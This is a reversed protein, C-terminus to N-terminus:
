LNTRTYRTPPATSVVRTAREASKAYRKKTAEHVGTALADPYDDHGAGDRTWRLLQEEAVSNKLGRYHWIKQETYLPQLQAIRDDKKGTGYNSQSIEEIPLFIGEEKSRRLVPEMFYQRGVNIEPFIKRFRYERALNFLTNRTRDPKWRGGFWEAVYIHFHNEFWQVFFVCFATHDNSVGGKTKGGALDISLFPIAGQFLPNLQGEDDRIYDFYQIDEQRFYITDDSIPDNLVQSAFVGYPQTHRKEAIVDEDLVTPFLPKGPEAHPFVQEDGEVAYAGFFGRPPPCDWVGYDKWLKLIGPEGGVTMGNTSVDYPSWRTCVYLGTGGPRLVDMTAAIRREVKLLHEENRYSTEGILDDWVNIDCRKGQMPVDLGSARVTPDRRTRDRQAVTLGDHLNWNESEMRGYLKVLRPAMLWDRIIRVTDVAMQKEECQILIAINPDLLIERLLWISFGYTKATYRPMSWFRLWRQKPGLHPPRPKALWDYYPGIEERPRPFEDNKLGVIETALYFLDELGMLAQERLLRKDSVVPELYAPIQDQSSAM